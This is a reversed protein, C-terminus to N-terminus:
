HFSLGFELVVWVGNVLVVLGLTTGILLVGAIGSVNLGEFGVVPLPL